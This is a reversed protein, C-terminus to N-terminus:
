FFLRGGKLFKNGAEQIYWVMNEWWVVMYSADQVYWVMNKRGGTNVM